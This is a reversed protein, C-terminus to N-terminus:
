GVRKIKTVQSLNPKVIKSEGESHYLKKAMASQGACLLNITTAINQKETGGLDSTQVEISGDHRVIVKVIAKISLDHEAM